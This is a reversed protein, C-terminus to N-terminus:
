LVRSERATRAIAEIVSFLRRSLDPDELIAHPDAKGDLPIVISADAVVTASMVTLTEVLSRWAHTARTSTNVLAIPKGILEGSGVVWDLANKLVGPVGHAYEPSSILVADSTRLLTRFRRVAEPAIEQDLDPNFPPVEGLAEFISVHVEASAFRAAAAVLASNSSSRRLSGSIALLRVPDVREVCIWVLGGCRNNRGIDLASV